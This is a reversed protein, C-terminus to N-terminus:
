GYLLLNTCWFPQCQCLQKMCQLAVSFGWLLSHKNTNPHRNCKELFYTGLVLVQVERRTSEGEKGSLGLDSKEKKMNITFHLSQYFDLIHLNKHYYDIKM